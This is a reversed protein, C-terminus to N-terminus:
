DQVIKGGMQNSIVKTQKERGRLARGAPINGKIITTTPKPSSVIKGKGPISTLEESYPSETLVWDGRILSKRGESKELEIDYTNDGERVWFHTANERTTTYTSRGSIFVVGNFAEDINPIYKGSPAKARKASTTGSGETEQTEPNWDYYYLDYQYNTVSYCTGMDRGNFDEIDVRSHTFGGLVGIGDTGELVRHGYNSYWDRGAVVKKGRVYNSKTVPHNITTIPKINPM